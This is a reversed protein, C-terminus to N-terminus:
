MIHAMFWTPCSMHCRFLWLMLSFYFLSSGCVWLRSTSYERKMITAIPSTPSAVPPSERLMEGELRRQFLRKKRHKMKRRQRRVLVGRLSKIYDNQPWASCYSIFISLMPAEVALHCRTARGLRPAAGGISTQAEYGVENVEKAGFPEWSVINVGSVDWTLKLEHLNRFRWFVSFLTKRNQQTIVLILTISPFDGYIL